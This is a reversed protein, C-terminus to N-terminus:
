GTIDFREEMFASVYDAIAEPSEIEMVRGVFEEAELISTSRIIQKIRPIGFSSMSFEDLGLGLLILTYLPDGAMEGCMGVSIGANHANQIIMKLSRLIGPHLPDYLYAVHENGRDVALTYQILDNTGISFFSAHRALLDTTMAASPVEIMIGAPIRSAFRINENELEIKVAQFIALAERLEQVGSILPFMIRLSGHVSARLLARLQTRFIDVHSLCFRIARWGLIPNKEGGGQVQLSSMLKDGGLDLTRITVPRPKMASLVRAYADYQEDEDPLHNAKMFLFESRYLGIGDAGHTDAADVEEPIEINAKLTLVKGDRTEAPLENLRMLQMDRKQAAALKRVYEERIKRDPELFVLGKFGDIILYDGTKVRESINGLGLVAPIEFARAIIATHSTKGGADMLIGKVKIKDMAIADTPMLDHCVLIVEEELRSLDIRERSMLNNIIRKSVDHLDATRERLYDDKVSGLKAVLDQMLDFLVFEVNLLHEDLGAQVKNGLDPDALMLQHTDLMQREGPKLQVDSADSQAKIDEIEQIAKSVAETYRSYESAVMQEDIAYRPIDRQDDKLLLVQCQAIGPSAPIGRLEIM